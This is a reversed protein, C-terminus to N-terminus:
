VYALRDRYVWAMLSLVQNASVIRIATDRTEKKKKPPIATSQILFVAM